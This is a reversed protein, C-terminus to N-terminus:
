NAVFAFSRVEEEVSPYDSVIKDRMEVFSNLVDRLLVLKKKEFSLFEEYRNKEGSANSIDTRLKSISARLENIGKELEIQYMEIEPITEVMLKYEDLKMAFALSLTDSSHFEAIREDMIQAADHMNKLTDIRNENLVVEISDITKAFADLTSLQGGKKLDTCSQFIVIATLFIFTFRAFKM